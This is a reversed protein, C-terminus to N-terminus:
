KLKNVNEAQKTFVDGSLLSIKEKCFECQCKLPKCSRITEPFKQKLKAIKEPNGFDIVQSFGSMKPASIKFGSIEGLRISM